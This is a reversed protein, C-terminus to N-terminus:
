NRADTPTFRNDHWSTESLHGRIFDDFPIYSSGVRIRLKGNVERALVRKSGLQYTGASLRTMDINLGPYRELGARVLDDIRDVGRPQRFIKQSGTQRGFLTAERDEMQRLLEDVENLMEKIRPRFAANVHLMQYREVLFARRKDLLQPNVKPDENPSLGLVDFQELSQYRDNLMKQNRIQVVIAPLQDNFEIMCKQRRNKLDNVQVFMREVADLIGLKTGLGKNRPQMHMLDSRTSLRESAEELLQEIESLENDRRILKEVPNRIMLEREMEHQLRESQEVLKTM